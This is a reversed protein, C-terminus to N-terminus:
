KNYKVFEDTLHHVSYFLYVKLVRLNVHFLSGKSIAEKKIDAM